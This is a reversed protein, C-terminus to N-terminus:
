SAARPSSRTERKYAKSFAFGSSYGVREAVQDLTLRRDQLLERAHAMRWRTLYRLPTEGTAQAFRTCFATRSMHCLAALAQVSWAQAPRTHIARLAPTIGADPRLDQPMGPGPTAVAGPPKLLALLVHRLVANASESMGVGAGGDRLNTLWRMLQAMPALWAQSRGEGRLHVVPPLRAMLPQALLEHTWFFSGCVGAVPAEHEVTFTRRGDHLHERAYELMPQPPAAPDTAVEHRGGQPLFLLEGPGLQGRWGSPAHHVAVAGGHSLYLPARSRSGVVLRQSAGIGAQFHLVPEFSLTDVVAELDTAPRSPRPAPAAPAPRNPM